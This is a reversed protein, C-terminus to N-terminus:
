AASFRAFGATKGFYNPEARDLFDRATKSPNGLVTMYNRETSGAFREAFAGFNGFHTAVADSDAYREYITCETEDGSLHWEYALAGSEKETSAIMDTMVGKFQEIKGPKVAMNVVWHVENTM